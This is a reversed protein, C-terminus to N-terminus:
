EVDYIMHVYFKRLLLFWWLLFSVFFPDCECVVVRQDPFYGVCEFFCLHVYWEFGGTDCVGFLFV